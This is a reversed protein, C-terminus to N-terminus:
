PTVEITETQIIEGNGNYVACVYKSIGAYQDTLNSWNTPLTVNMDGSVYTLAQSVPDMNLTLSGTVHSTQFDDLTIVIQVSSVGILDVPQVGSIVGQKISTPTVTKEVNATFNTSPINMYISNATHSNEEIMIDDFNFFVQPPEPDPQPDVKPTYGGISGGAVQPLDWPIIKVM